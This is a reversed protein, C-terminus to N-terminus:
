QGAVSELCQGITEVGSGTLKQSLESCKKKVQDSLLLNSLRTDLSTVSFSRPSLFDGVGLQKIREANDPQDFALPFILQPIGARLAESTTGIGGHHIIACCQPLLRSFDAYGCFFLDTSPDNVTNYFSPGSVIAREGTRTCYQRIVDLKNGWDMVGTGFTFVLPKKGNELFATIEPDLTGADDLPTLPFDTLHLNGPWDSQRSAFWDPFLGLVPHDTMWWTLLSHIRSNLGLDVRIKNITGATLLSTYLDIFQYAMKRITKPARALNPLGSLRPMAEVSRIVTPQLCFTVHPINLKEAAMRAGMALSGMVIVSNEDLALSSTLCEFLPRIAPIALQRMLIDFSRVPHWLKPNNIGAKFLSGDTFETFQLGKSEAARRFESITVVHVEYGKEALYSGVRLFPNVDGYTGLPCLIYQKM